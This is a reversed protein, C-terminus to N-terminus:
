NLSMGMRTNIPVNIPVHTVWVYVCQFFHFSIGRKTSYSRLVAVMYTSEFHECFLVVCTILHLKSKKNSFLLLGSSWSGTSRSSTCASTSSSEVELTFIPVEKSKLFHFAEWSAENLKM